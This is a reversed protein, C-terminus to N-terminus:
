AFLKRELVTELNRRHFIREFSTPAVNAPILAELPTDLLSDNLGVKGVREGLSELYFRANAIAESSRVPGHSSVLRRDISKKELTELASQFRAPTSYKLYVINGVLTDGVFLLNAEPVDITLTSTTHGPNHFVDFTFKGWRLKLRDSVLLHPEVFHGAEEDSRYQESRFTEMYNEHAIITARPFYGLAAIHDSFYHTSIIFRVEKKLDQEVYSRLDEADGRSGLADVLLADSGNIFITSNSQYTKGIFLILDPQIKVINMLSIEPTKTSLNYEEIARCLFAPATLVSVRYNRTATM